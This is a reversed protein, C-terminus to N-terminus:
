CPLLPFSRDCQQCCKGHPMGFAQQLPILCFLLVVAQKLHTGCREWESESERERACVWVCMCAQETTFFSRDEKRSAVLLIAHNSAACNILWNKSRKTKAFAPPLFRITPRCAQSQKAGDLAPASVTEITLRVFVLLPDTGRCCACLQWMHAGIEVFNRKEIVLRVRRALLAVIMNLIVMCM